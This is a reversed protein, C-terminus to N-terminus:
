SISFFHHKLVKISYIFEDKFSITHIDGKCIACDHIENELRYMCTFVNFKMTNVKEAYM